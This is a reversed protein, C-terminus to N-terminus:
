ASANEGRVDQVVGAAALDATDLSRGRPAHHLGGIAALGRRALAEGIRRRPQQSVSIENRNQVRGRTHGSLAYCANANSIITTMTSTYKANM